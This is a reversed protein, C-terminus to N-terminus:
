QLLLMFGKHKWQYLSVKKLLSNSIHLWPTVLSHLDFSGTNTKGLLQGARVWVFPIQGKEGFVCQPIVSPQCDHQWSEKFVPLLCSVGALAASPRCDSHLRIVLLATLTIGKPFWWLFGHSHQCNSSGKLVWHNVNVVWWIIVFPSFQPSWILSCIFLFEAVTFSQCLHLGM